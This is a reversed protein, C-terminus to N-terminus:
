GWGKEALKILENITMVEERFVPEGYISYIFKKMIVRDSKHIWGEKRLLKFLEKTVEVFDVPHCEGKKSKTIVEGIFDAIKESM